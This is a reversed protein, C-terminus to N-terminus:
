SRAPSTPPRIASPVSPAITAGVEPDFGAPRHGHIDAVARGALLPSAEGWIRTIFAVVARVRALQRLDRRAILYVEPMGIIGPSVPVLDPCSVAAIAPFCGIGAGSRTAAVLPLLENSRMVVQAGDLQGELWKIGPMGSLSEDFLLMRHGAFGGSPTGFRALYGPTAFLAIAVSGLRRMTLSQHKPVQNRLAIDAEGRTLNLFSHGARIELTIGPFQEAFRGMNPALLTAAIFEPVALSVIGAPRKDNGKVLASLASTAAEISRVTEIIEQGAMTLVCGDSRRDFLKAGLSSELTDLRRLVTARDVRLELAAAQMSGHRHVALMYRLLDWEM